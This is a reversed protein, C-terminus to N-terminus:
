AARRPLPPAPAGGPSPSSSLALLLPLANLLPPRVQLAPARRRRRNYCQAGAGMEVRGRRRSERRGGGCLGGPNHRRPLPLPPRHAARPPLPPSLALSPPPLANLPSPRRRLAAGGCHARSRRRKYSQAGAGMEVRGRRGSERRGGGLRRPLPAPSPPPCPAAPPPLPRSSSLGRRCRWWAAATATASSIATCNRLRAPISQLANIALFRLTM